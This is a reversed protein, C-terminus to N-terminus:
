SRSGEGAPPSAAEGNPEALRPPPSMVLDGRGRTSALNHTHVHAGAGIAVLARGIPSGYKVVADGAGIGVIALKHGAPIAELVTVQREGISVVAGATLARLATAVNDRPDIAIADTV